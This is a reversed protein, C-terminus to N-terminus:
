ALSQLTLGIMAGVGRSHHLVYQKGSAKAEELVRGSAAHSICAANIIVLDASGSALGLSQAGNHAEDPDLWDVKLKWQDELVPKAHKKLWQHGGIVVVRKGPPVNAPPTEGEAPSVQSSSYEALQPFALALGILEAPPDTVGEQQANRVLQQVTEEFPEGAELQHTLLVELAPGRLPKFGNTYRSVLSVLDADASEGQYRLERVLRDFAEVSDKDHSQKVSAELAREYVIRRQEASVLSTWPLNRSEVLRGVANLYNDPRQGAQLLDLLDILETQPDDVGWLTLAQVYVRDAIAWTLSNSGGRDNLSVDTLYRASRSLRMQELTKAWGPFTQHTNPQGNAAPQFAALFEAYDRLASNRPSIFRALMKRQNNSAWELPGGAICALCALAAPELIRTDEQFAKLRKEAEPVLWALDSVTNQIDEKPWVKNWDDLSNKEYLANALLVLGLAFGENGLTAERLIDAIRDAAMWQGARAGGLLHAIRCYDALVPALRRLVPDNVLYELRARAQQSGLRESDFGNDSVLEALLLDRLDSESVIPGSPGCDNSLLSLVVGAYAVRAERSLDDELRGPKELARRLAGLAEEHQGLRAMALGAVARLPLEDDTQVTQCLRLAKERTEEADSELGALLDHWNASSPPAPEDAATPEVDPAPPPAEPLAPIGGRLLAVLEEVAGALRDLREILPDPSHGDTSAALARGAVAAPATSAAEEVAPPPPQAAARALAAEQDHRMREMAETVDDDVALRDGFYRRLLDAAMPAAPVYWKRQPASWRYGPVLKVLEKDAFACEVALDNGALTVTASQQAPPAPRQRAEVVEQALDPTHDWKGEGFIDDLARISGPQRAVQYARVASVYRCGPIRLVLAEDRGSATVLYRFEDVRMSVM